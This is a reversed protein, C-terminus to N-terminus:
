DRNQKNPAERVVAFKEDPSFLLVFDFWCYSEGPPPGSSMEKNRALGRL